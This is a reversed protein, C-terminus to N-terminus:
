MVAGVTQSPSRTPAMRMVCHRRTFAGVFGKSFAKSGYQVVVVQTMGAGAVATRSPPVSAATSMTIMIRAATRALVPVGGVSTMANSVPAPRAPVVTVVSM